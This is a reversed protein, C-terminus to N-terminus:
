NCMTTPDNEAFYVQPRRSIVLSHLCKCLLSSILHIKKTPKRLTANWTQSSPQPVFSIMLHIQRGAWSM